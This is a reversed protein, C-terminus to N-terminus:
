ALKNTTQEDLAEKVTLALNVAGEVINIEAPTLSRLLSEAKRLSDRYFSKRVGDVGTPM